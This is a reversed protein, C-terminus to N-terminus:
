PGKAQRKGNRSGEGKKLFNLYTNIKPQAPDDSSCPKGRAASLPAEERTTHLGREETARKNCLMPELGAPKKLLQPTHKATEAGCAWCNHRGPETTEHCVSDEPDPILCHVMISSNLFSLVLIYSLTFLCYLTLHFLVWWIACQHICLINQFCFVVLFVHISSFIAVFCGKNEQKQREAKEQNAVTFM